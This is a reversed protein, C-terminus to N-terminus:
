KMLEILSDLTQDIEQEVQLKQQQKLEYEKQQLELLEQRRASETLNRSSQDQDQNTTAVFQDRVLDFQCELEDLLEDNKHKNKKVRATTNEKQTSIRLTNYNPVANKSLLSPSLSSKLSNQISRKPVKKTLKDNKKIKALLVTSNQLKSRHKSGIQKLKPTM